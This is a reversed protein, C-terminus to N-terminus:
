NGSRLYFPFSQVEAVMGVPPEPFKWSAVRDRICNEVAANRLTTSKVRVNRPIGKEGIDWALIVKGELAVRGALNRKNLEAEYCGKIEIRNHRVVRRVAERDMTGVFSEEAGGTAISVRTKDGFGETAGYESQGSSRGKTNVGAIGQTATGMGGAGTDKFKSGLDEGGRDEGMGSQGSARDAQGLMEGAGSYAEDIKKRIGGGGFASFMGMKTVDRTSQANAGSQNGIKVAAGQKLSTFKKPKNQLDPRPAVESAKQAVQPRGLMKVSPAGKSQNETKKETVQVKAQPPPTEREPPPPPPLRPSPPASNFIVKAVRLIEEQTEEEQPKPLKASIGFGLIVVFVLSLLLGTIEESTMMLFPGLPPIPTVPVYRLVLELQSVGLNLYLIEGQELKIALGSKQPLCRNSSKLDKWSLSEGQSMLECSMEGQIFVRASTRFDILALRPNLLGTPIGLSSARVVGPKRFHRSGIVRGGWVVHVELTHGRTSRFFSKLDAIQEGPAFTKKNLQSAKQIQSSTRLEPKASPSSSKNADKRAEKTTKLILTKQLDSAAELSEVPPPTPNKVSPSPPKPKPVGVFFSIKFPGIQIEDGSNLPEDLVQVGNRFTGSKSGLDCLYFINERQEILAHIPSVTDHDLDLQVDAEHGIVIQDLDFQKVEVLQQGKFVRLIVPTKM